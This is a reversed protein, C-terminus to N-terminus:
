LAKENTASAERIAAISQRLTFIGIFALGAGLLTTIAGAVPGGHMGGMLGYMGAVTMVLGVLSILGAFVGSVLGLFTRTITRLPAM